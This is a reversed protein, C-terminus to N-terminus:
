GSIRRRFRARKALFAALFFIKSLVGVSRGGIMIGSLRRDPAKQIATVQEAMRWEDALGISCPFGDVDV